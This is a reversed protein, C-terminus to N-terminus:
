EGGSRTRIDAFELSVTNVNRADHIQVSRRQIVQGGTTGFIEVGSPNYAADRLSQRTNLRAM